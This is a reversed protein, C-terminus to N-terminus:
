AKLLQIATLLEGTSMDAADDFGAAKLRQILSERSMLGGRAIPEGRNVIPTEKSKWTLSIGAPEGTDRNPYRVESTIEGDHDPHTYYFTAKNGTGHRRMTLAPATDANVTLAADISKGDLGKIQWHGGYIQAYGVHVRKDDAANMSPRIFVKNPEGDGVNCADIELVCREIVNSSAAAKFKAM